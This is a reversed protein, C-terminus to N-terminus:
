KNDKVISDTILANVDPASKLLGIEVMTDAVQSVLTTYGGGPTLSFRHSPDALQDSTLGSAPIHDYLTEAQDGVLGIGNQLATVYETKSDNTIPTAEDVAAVFAKLTKTNDKIFSADAIFPGNDDVGLDTSSTGPVLTAGSSMLKAGVSAFMYVASLDGRTYGAVLATPDLFQINVDSPSLGARKLAMLLFIHSVTNQTTAVTKGKLDAISKIGSDPNAYLAAMQGALNAVDFVQLHAGQQNATMMAPVGFYGVDQSGSVLASILAPGSAFKTGVVQIGKKAFLDHQLAYYFNAQLGQAYAVRLTKTEGSSGDGGGSEGAGCAVLSVAALTAVAAAASVRLRRGLSRYM